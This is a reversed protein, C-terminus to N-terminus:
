KFLHHFFGLIAFVITADIVIMVHAILTEREFFTDFLEELFNM